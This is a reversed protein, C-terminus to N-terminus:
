REGGHVAHKLDRIEDHGDKVIVYAEAILAKTAASVDADEMADEFKAKIHDEGAEVEDIVAVDGGAIAHRLNIFVRHASALMTGDDEPTGGLNRVHMQLQRTLAHREAGRRAFIESFRSTETEKIAHTYGDASDIVTEILSNLVDIDNEHTTM